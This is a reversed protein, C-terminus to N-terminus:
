IPGLAMRSATDFLFIGLDRPSDFRVGIMRDYLGYGVQTPLLAHSSM